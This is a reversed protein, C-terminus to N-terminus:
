GHRREVKKASVMVWAPRFGCKWAINQSHVNSLSTGYFPLAGRREVEYALGEVLLMGLGRSRYAPLVDIGIQWMEPADASAGAMAAPRDGDLALLALMDPRAPNEEAQLANPWDRNPYYAAIDEKELWQLGLDAPAQVPAFDRIPLYQHFTQTLRYGYPTLLEALRQMRPFELLWHPQEADKAWDRLQPWLREDAMIVAATGTTALEFFPTKDWYARRGPNLVPPTFILGGAGLAGPTTNYDVALQALGIAWAKQKDM